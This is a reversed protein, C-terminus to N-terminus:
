QKRSLLEEKSNIKDYGTFDFVHQTIQTNIEEIQDWDLVKLRQNVYMDTKNQNWEESQSVKTPINLEQYTQFKADLKHKDTIGKLFDYMHKKNRIIDEYQIKEYKIKQIVEERSFWECHNNWLKALKIIDIDHYKFRENTSDDAVIWDNRKIIDVKKRIISEIWCYPSKTIYIHLVDDKFRDLDVNYTHKWIYARDNNVIQINNFNQKFVTETFNTGSRQIGLIVCRKAM